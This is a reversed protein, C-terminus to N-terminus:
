QSQKVVRVKKFLSKEENEYKIKHMSLCMVKPETYTKNLNKKADSFYINGVQRCIFFLVKLKSHVFVFESSKIQLKICTKFIVIKIKKKLKNPRKQLEIVDFKM